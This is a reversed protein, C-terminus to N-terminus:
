GWTVLDGLRAALGERVWTSRGTQNLGERYRARVECVFRGALWCVILEAKWDMRWFCSAKREFCM